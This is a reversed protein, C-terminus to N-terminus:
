PTRRLQSGEGLANMLNERFVRNGMDAISGFRNNQRKRVQGHIDPFRTGPLRGPIDLSNRSEAEM